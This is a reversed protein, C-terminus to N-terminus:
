QYTHTHTCVKFTYANRAADVLKTLLHLVWM